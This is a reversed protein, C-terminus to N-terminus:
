FHNSNAGGNTINGNLFLSNGVILMSHYDYIAWSDCYHILNGEITLRDWSDYIGYDCNYIECGIIIGDVLAVAYGLNEFYCNDVSLITKSTTGKIGYSSGRTTNIFSCHSLTTRLSGTTNIHIGSCNKFSCDKIVVDSLGSLIIM